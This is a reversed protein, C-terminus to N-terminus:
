ELGINFIVYTRVFARVSPFVCSPVAMRSGGEAAGGSCPAPPRVCGHLLASSLGRDVDDALPLTSPAPPPTLCLQPLHGITPPLLSDTTVTPLRISLHLNPVLVSSFHLAVGALGAGVGEVM